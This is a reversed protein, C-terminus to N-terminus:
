LRVKPTLILIYLLCRILQRELVYDLTVKKIAVLKSFLFGVVVVAVRYTNQLAFFVPCLLCHNKQKQKSQNLFQPRACLSKQITTEEKQLKLQKM